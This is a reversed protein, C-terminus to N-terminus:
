EIDEDDRFVASLLLGGEVTAAILRRYRHSGSFTRVSASPGRHLTVMSDGRGVQLSDAYETVVLRNGTTGVWLPRRTTKSEAVPRHRSTRTARGLSSVGRRDAVLLRGGDWLAYTEESLQVRDAEPARVTDLVPRGRHDRREVELVEYSSDTPYNTAQGWGLSSRLSERDIRSQRSPRPKWADLFVALGNPGLSAAVAGMGVSLSETADSTLRQPSTLTGPASRSTEITACWTGRNTAVYLRDYYAHLDLVSQSEVQFGVDSPAPARATLVVNSAHDFSKWAERAESTAGIGKASFLAYAAIAGKARHAYALERALESTPYALVHGDFTLVYIWGRYAFIDAARPEEIFVSVHHM